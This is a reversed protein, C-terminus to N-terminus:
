RNNVTVGPWDDTRFPCMPLSASNFLTVVPNHAWGYRVAVPKEVKPSSVVVTDKGVIEAQAWHFVKDEGAVSFGTPLAGRSYLGDYAFDFALVAKGDSFEASKFRPSECPIEKGYDQVLALLALRLGVDQKNRPHIDKEDGIDIIVAEGTKPLSRTMSQSERFEAWDSNGPDRQIGTFNTLQVWYFSLTEQGGREKWESRWDEILTPFLTRHQFARWANTEGQYWVAGRVGYGIIPNLMGNYLYGVQQNDGGEPKDKEFNARRELIKDFDPNKAAVDRNIWSECSSGGWSCHILGVPINTDQHIKRGFFYLVASFHRVTDPTCVSWKGSFDDQPATKSVTPVTILRINPFNAGNIEGGSNNSSNVSWQMNSQGSGIWVEGVLINEYKIENKGKVSMTLPEGVELPDLKVIWKGNDGAKTTKTQGAITVTVEEGPEAWGWVPNAQKQQLVMNDSFVAPLKVEAFVGGAYLMVALFVLVRKM